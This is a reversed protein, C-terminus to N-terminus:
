YTSKGPPAKDGQRQGLFPQEQQYGYYGKAKAHKECENSLCTHWQDERCETSPGNAHQVQHTTQMGITSQCDTRGPFHTMERKDWLHSPCSDDKCEYWLWKCKPMGKAHKPSWGAGRKDSYHTPCYDHTCATWSIKAHNKNRADYWYWVPECSNNRGQTQQPRTAEQPMLGQELRKINATIHAYTPLRQTTKIQYFDVDSRLHWLQRYMELLTTDGQYNYNKGPYGLLGSLENIWKGVETLDDRTPTEPSDPLASDQRKVYPTSPRNEEQFRAMKEYKTTPLQEEETEYEEDSTPEAESTDESTTLTLDELGSIVEKDDPHYKIEPRTIVNWSENDDLGSKQHLVNLQRKVKNKNQCNRAMHGEKGCAYCNIKKKDDKGKKYHPKSPGRGKNLNDLHMPEYGNTTYAGPIRPQYSRQRGQNPQSRRHHQQRPRDSRDNHNRTGQNFLQEELKLEYLENDLRIAEEILENLNTINAGSRMLERRVM